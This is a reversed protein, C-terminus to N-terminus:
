PNTEKIEEGIRLVPLKLMGPTKGIRYIELTGADNGEDDRSPNIETGDDLVLVPARCSWLIETAEENSLYRVATITRGVLHKAAEKRFDAM